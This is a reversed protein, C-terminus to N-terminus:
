TFRDHTMWLAPTHNPGDFLDRHWYEATEGEPHVGMYLVAGVFVKLEDANTPWWARQNIAENDHHQRAGIHDRGREIAGQRLAYANTNTALINWMEENWFLSFLAYPSDLDLGEPYIPRPERNPGEQFPEFDVTNADILEGTFNVESLKALRTKKTKQREARLQKATKLRAKLKTKTDPKGDANFAEYDKATTSQITKVATELVEPITEGTVVAATASDASPVIAVVQSGTKIPKSRKGRKKVGKQSTPSPILPTNTTDCATTYNQEAANGIHASLENTTAADNFKVPRRTKRSPKSIPM